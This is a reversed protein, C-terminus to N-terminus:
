PKREDHEHRHLPRHRPVGRNLDLCQVASVTLEGATMWQDIVAGLKAMKILAAEPTEGVPIYKKIASLKEQAADDTDKMRGIRGMVESLDLTEVTIGSKELLKESYRVTNLSHSTAGIAGFRREQSRTGRPM